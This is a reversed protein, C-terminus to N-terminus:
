RLVLQAESVAACVGEAPFRRVITRVVEAAKAATEDELFCLLYFNTEPWTRTGEKRKRRGKGHVIPILTYEIDPMAAELEDILEERLSQNAIVELRKM